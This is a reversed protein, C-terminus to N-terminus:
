MVVSGRLNCFMKPMIIFANGELSCLSGSFSSLFFSFFSLFFFFFPLLLSHFLFSLFPHPRFTWWDTRGLRGGCRAAQIARPRFTWVCEPNTTAHEFGSVFLHGLWNIALLIGRHGNFVTYRVGHVNSWAYPSKETFASNYWSKDFNFEKMMNM